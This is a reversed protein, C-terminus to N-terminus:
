AKENVFLIENLDGMILWSLNNQQHISRMRDWTNYKDAWRFEGYM